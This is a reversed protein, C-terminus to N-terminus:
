ESVCVKRVKPKVMHYEAFRAGNVMKYVKAINAGMKNLEYIRAALRFCGFKGLADMATLSFGWDLWTRIKDRQTSTQM